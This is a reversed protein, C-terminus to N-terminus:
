QTTWISIEQRDIYWRLIRADYSIAGHPRFLRRTEKDAKYADSVKSICRVVMQAALSFREKADRYVLAHLNFQNFIKTEWAIGSIYGCAQNAIELTELLVRAQEITPKLKVKATLKM